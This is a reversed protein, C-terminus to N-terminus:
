KKKKFEDIKGKEDKVVMETDTLKTITGTEKQEKGDPDKVTLTVKDGTIAYTGGLVLTEGGPDKVTVKLKGDATFDVVAGVPGDESKILEWTGVIKEKNEADKRPPAPAAGDAPGRILGAALSGLLAFRLLSM